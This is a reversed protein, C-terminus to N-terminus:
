KTAKCLEQLSAEKARVQSEEVAPDPLPVLVVGNTTASLSVLVFSFDTKQPSVHQIHPHLSEGDENGGVTTGQEHTQEGVALWDEEMFDMGEM